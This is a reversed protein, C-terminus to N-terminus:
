IVLRLAVFAIVGWMLIALLLTWGLGPRADHGPPLRRPSPMPRADKSPAPLLHGAAVFTAGRLRATHDHSRNQASLAFSV